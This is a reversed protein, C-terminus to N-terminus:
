RSIKSIYMSRAITNHICHSYVNHQYYGYDHCNNKDDHEDIAPHSSRRVDNPDGVDYYVSYIMM